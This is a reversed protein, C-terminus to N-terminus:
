STLGSSLDRKVKRRGIQTFLAGLMIEAKAYELIKLYGHCGNINCFFIKMPSKFCYKSGHFETM